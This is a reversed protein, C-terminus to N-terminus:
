EGSCEECEECEECEACEACQECRRRVLVAHDRQVLVAVVVPAQRHDEPHRDAEEDGDKM